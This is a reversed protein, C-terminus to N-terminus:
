ISISVNLAGDMTINQLSIEENVDVLALGGGYVAKNSSMTVNDINTVSETIYIAGGTNANGNSIENSGLFEVNNKLCLAGGNGSTTNRTFTTNEFTATSNETVYVAGGNQKASNNEFFVNKFTVSGDVTKELYVTGGDREAINGNFTVNEIKVEGSKIYLAGNDTTNEIFQVRSTENAGLINVTGGSVYIVGDSAKSSTIQTGSEKTSSLTLNGGSVNIVGGQVSSYIGSLVVDELTLSGNTINFLNFANAKQLKDAGSIAINKFTINPAKATEDDSSEKITILSGAFTEVLMELRKENEFVSRSGDENRVLVGSTVIINKDGTLTIIEDKVVFKDIDDVLFYVTTTKSSEDDVRVSYLANRLSEFYKVTDDDYKVAFNAKGVAVKYKDVVCFICEQGDVGFGSFLGAEISDYIAEGTIENTYEAVINRSGDSNTYENSRYEIRLPITKNSKVFSRNYLGDVYVISKNALYLEDSIALNYSLTSLEGDVKGRGIILDKGITNVYVGKGYGSSVENARITVAIIRISGSSIVKETVTEGGSLVKTEVEGKEQYIAGGNVEASNSTIWLGKKDGDLTLSSSKDVYIAGANNSVKNSKIEGGYLTAKSDNLYIAGGDIAIYAGTGTVDGGNMTLNGGFAYIQGGDGSKIGLSDVEHGLDRKASNGFITGDEILVNVGYVKRSVGSESFKIAGTYKRDDSTGQVTAMFIAGGVKAKNYQIIGGDITLTKADIETDFNDEVYIAGGYNEVTNNAILVSDTGLVKKNNIRVVPHFTTSEIIEPAIFLAGGNTATNNILQVGKIELQGGGVYIGGGNIAINARSSITSGIDGKEIVAVANRGVYIAGGNTARNSYISGDLMTFSGSKVYIAGGNTARNEQLVAGNLILENESLVGAGDRTTEENSLRSAYSLTLKGANKILGNESDNQGKLTLYPRVSDEAFDLSYLDYAESFSDTNAGLIVEYGSEIVFMYDKFDGSRSINLNRQNSTITIPKNGIDGVTTSSINITNKIYYTDAGYNAIILYGRDDTKDKLEALSGLAEQLEVFANLVKVKDGTKYAFVQFYQREVVIYSRGDEIISSLIM